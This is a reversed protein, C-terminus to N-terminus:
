PQGMGMVQVMIKRPRPGDFELLAIKQWQGLVLRGERIIFSVSPHGFLASKIHADGNRDCHHDDACLNVTRMPSNHLYNENKPAFSRVKRMLDGLFMPEDIENVVLTASTHLIQVTLVGESIGAEEVVRHLHGTVDHVYFHDSPELFDSLRPDLTTLNQKETQIKIWTYHTKLANGSSRMSLTEYSRNEAAREM